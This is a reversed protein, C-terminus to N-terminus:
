RACMGPFVVLFPSFLKFFAGFIVGQKAHWVSKGALIRQVMFQDFDWYFLSLVFIVM